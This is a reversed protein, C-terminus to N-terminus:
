AAVEEDLPQYCLECLPEHAQSEVLMSFFTETDLLQRPEPLGVFKSYVSVTETRFASSLEFAGELTDHLADTLRKSPTADLRQVVWNGLAEELAPPCTDNEPFLQTVACAISAAALGRCHGLLCVLRQVTDFSERDFRTYSNLAGFLAVAPKRQQNSVFLETANAFGEELMLCVQRLVDANATREDHGSLLTTQLVARAVGHAAEHLVYNKNFCRLLFQIPLKPDGQTEALQRLGRVNNAHPISRTQILQELALLPLAAYIAAQESEMPVFKYGLAVARQRIAAYLPSEHCLLADGLNNELAM